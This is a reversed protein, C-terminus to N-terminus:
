LVLELSFQVQVLFVNGSHFFFFTRACSSGVAKLCVKQVRLLFIADKLEDDFVLM